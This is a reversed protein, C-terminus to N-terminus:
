LRLQVSHNSAKPHTCGFINKVPNILSIAKMLEINNHSFRNRREMLVSDLVPFYVNVKYHQSSSLIDRTGTSQYVIGDEFRHPAQRQRRSQVTANIEVSNLEAVKKTYTFIKEWESDTRFEQLTGETAMVLDAAKGLDIQMSQLSDSLSKTCTLIRDFIILSILFKFDKVQLLLGQAEVAKLRDPGESIDELTSLLSDYTYCIANVAGHRCAWRTDSLKQLERTPKDPHLRKQTAVFLSHAKSTAM